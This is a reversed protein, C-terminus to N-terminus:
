AQDMMKGHVKVETMRTIKPIGAMSHPNMDAIAICLATSAAAVCSLLTSHM